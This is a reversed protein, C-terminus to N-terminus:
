QENVISRIALVYEGAEDLCREAEPSLKGAKSRGRSLLSSAEWAANSVDTLVDDINALMLETQTSDLRLTTLQRRMSANEAALRNIEARLRADTTNDAIEAASEAPLEAANNKTCGAFATMVAACALILTPIYATRKM